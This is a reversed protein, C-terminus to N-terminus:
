LNKLYSNLQQQPNRSPISPVDYNKWIVEYKNCLFVIYKITNDSPTNMEANAPQEKPFIAYLFNQVSVTLSYDKNKSKISWM